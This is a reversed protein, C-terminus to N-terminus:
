AYIFVYSCLYKCLAYVKRKAKWITVGYLKGYLQEYKSEVASRHIICNKKQKNTKTVIRKSWDIKNINLSLDKFPSEFIWTNIFSDVKVAYTWINFTSCYLGLSNEKFPLPSAFCFKPWLLIAYHFSCPIWFVQIQIDTTSNGVLQIPQGAM